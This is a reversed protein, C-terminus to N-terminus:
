PTPPAPPQGPGPPAAVPPDGKQPLRIIPRPRPTSSEASELWGKMKALLEAAKLKDKISIRIGTKSSTISTLAARDSAAVDALDM